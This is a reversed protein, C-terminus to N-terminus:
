HTRRASLWQVRGRELVWPTGSDTCGGGSANGFRRISGRAVVAVGGTEGVVVVLGNRPCPAVVTPRVGVLDRFQERSGLWGIRIGVQGDPISGYVVTESDNLACGASGVVAYGVPVPKKVTKRTALTASVLVGSARKPVLLAIRTGSSDICPLVRVPVGPDTVTLPVTLQWLRSGDVAIVSREGVRMPDASPATAVLADGADDIALVTQMEQDATLPLRLVEGKPVARVQLHELDLRGAWVPRNSPPGVGLTPQAGIDARTGTESARILIQKGAPGLVNLDGNQELVLASPCPGCGIATTPPVVTGRWLVRGSRDQGALEFGRGRRTLLLAGQDDAFAYTANGVSGAPRVPPPSKVVRAHMDPRTWAVGFAVALVAVLAGACGPLSGLRV